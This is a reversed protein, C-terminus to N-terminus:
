LDRRPRPPAQAGPVVPFPRPLGHTRAAPPVPPGEGRHVFLRRCYGTAPPPADAAVLRRDLAQTGPSPESKASSPQCAATVLTLALLLHVTARRPVESM